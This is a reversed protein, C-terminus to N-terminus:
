KSKNKSAQIEAIKLRMDAGAQLELNRMRNLANETIEITRDNNINTGILSDKIAQMEDECKKLIDLVENVESNTFGADKLNKSITKKLQARKDMIEDTKNKEVLGAKKAIKKLIGM